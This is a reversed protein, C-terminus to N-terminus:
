WIGFDEDVRRRANEQEEEYCARMDRQLERRERNAEDRTILGAAEREDIDNEERDFAGWNVPMIPEKNFFARAEPM